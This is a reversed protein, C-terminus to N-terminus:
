LIGAVASLRALRRLERRSFEAGHAFMLFAVGIEALVRLAHSDAVRTPAFTNIALGALLYGLFAPQQLRHAVLGGVFAALVGFVIDRLPQDEHM